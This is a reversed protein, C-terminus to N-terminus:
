LILLLEEVMVMRDQKGDISFVVELVGEMQLLRSIYVVELLLPFLSIVSFAVLLM